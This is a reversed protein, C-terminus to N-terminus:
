TELFHDDQRLNKYVLLINNFQKLVNKLSRSNTNNLDEMFVILNPQHQIDKLQKLFFEYTYFGFYHGDKSLQKFLRLNPKKQIVIPNEIDFENCVVRLLEFSKPEEPNPNQLSLHLCNALFFVLISLFM